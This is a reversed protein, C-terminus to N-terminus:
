ESRWIPALTLGTANRCRRGGAEVLIQASGLVHGAPHFTVSVDGIALPEGYGLAQVTGAFAEGYRLRM